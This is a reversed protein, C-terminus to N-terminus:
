ARRRAEPALLQVQAIRFRLGDLSDASAHRQGSQPSLRWSDHAPRHSRGRHESADTRSLRQGVTRLFRLCVDKRQALKSVKSTNDFASAEGLRGFLQMNRLGRQTRLDALELGDEPRRQEFSM